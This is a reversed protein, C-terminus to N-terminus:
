LSLHTVLAGRGLVLTFCGALDGVLYQCRTMLINPLLPLSRPRRGVSRKTLSRKCGQDSPDEVYRLRDLLAGANTTAIAFRGEHFCSAPSRACALEDVGCWVSDVSSGDYVIEIPSNM